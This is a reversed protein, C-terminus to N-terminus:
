TFSLMPIQDISIKTPAHQYFGTQEILNLAKTAERDCQGILYNLISEKSADGRGYMLTFNDPLYVNGLVPTKRGNYLTHADMDHDTVLAFKRARNRLDRNIEQTVLIWACKESPLTNLDKRFLAIGHGLVKVYYSNPDPATLAICHVVGTASVTQDGIVRTNTDVAILMDFSSSLHRMLDAEDPIVKNHIRTLVKEKGSQGTYSTQSFTIEPTILRGDLTLGMLEMKEKDYHFGRLPEPSGVM